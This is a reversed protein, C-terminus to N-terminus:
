NQRVPEFKFFCRTTESEKNHKLSLGRLQNKRKKCSVSLGLNQTLSSDPVGGASVRLCEAVVVALFVGGDTWDLCWVRGALYSCKMGIVVRQSITNVLTHLCTSFQRVSVITEYFWQKRKERM